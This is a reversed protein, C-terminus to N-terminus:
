KKTIFGSCTAAVIQLGDAKMKAIEESWFQEPYRAFHFEGMVPLWPRSDRTLYRSTAGITHGTPSTATGMRFFGTEVAPPTARADIVVSQHRKPGSPHARRCRHGSFRSSHM